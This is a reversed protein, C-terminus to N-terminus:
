PWRSAAVENAKEFLVDQIEPEPAGRRRWEEVLGELEDELDDAEPEPAGTGTVAVTYTGDPNLAGEVRHAAVSRCYETSGDPGFYTVTHYGDSAATILVEDIQGPRFVSAASAEEVVSHRGTIETDTTPNTAAM